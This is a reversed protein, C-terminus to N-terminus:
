ANDYYEKWAERQVRDTIRARNIAERLDLDDDLLKGIEFYKSSPSGSRVVKDLPDIKEGFGLLMQRRTMLM